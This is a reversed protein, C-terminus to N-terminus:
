AELREAAAEITTKGAMVQRALADAKSESVVALKQMATGRAAEIIMGRISKLRLEPNGAEFSSRIREISEQLSDIGEGSLASVKMVPPSRPSGRFISLLNVVMIDAGELDSKNVVYIDGIEMLGAKSVQIDDGLGPMLVVLVAHSVGVVEIDSQGIGVTELLVLDFGAADM